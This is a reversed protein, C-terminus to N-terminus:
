ASGRPQAIREIYAHATDFSDLAVELFQGRSGGAAVFHAVALAFCGMAAERNPADGTAALLVATIANAIEASDSSQLAAVTKDDIM